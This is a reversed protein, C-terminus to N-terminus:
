MIGSQIVMQAAVFSKWCHPIKVLPSESSGTCSEEFCQFELHQEILLKVTMINLRSAFVSILSRMHAPQDSGKSTACVVNNSIGHQPENSCAYGESGESSSPCCKLGTAGSYLRKNSSKACIRTSIGIMEHTKGM